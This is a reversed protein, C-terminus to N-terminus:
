VTFRESAFQADPVGAGVAVEMAREALPPPRRVYIDPLVSGQALAARM